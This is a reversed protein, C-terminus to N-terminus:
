YSLQHHTHPNYTTSYGPYLTYKYFDDYTSGTGLGDPRYTWIIENSLEPDYIRNAFTTLTGNNYLYYGAMPPGKFTSLQTINPNIALATNSSAISKEWNEQYLYMRSLIAYAATANMKFIDTNQPNSILLAAGEKADKEIQDYVEKVTNRSYLHDSVEMDLRLPVGLSVSPDKGPANYPAGYMNVLLLYYYARLALAQGKVNEKVATQGTVKDVYKIITNTASIREYM